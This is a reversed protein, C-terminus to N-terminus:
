SFNNIIRTVPSSEAVVYQTKPSSKIDVNLSELDKVIIQADETWAHRRCPSKPKNFNNFADIWEQIKNDEINKLEICKFRYVRIEFKDSSSPVHLQKESSNDVKFEIRFQNIGEKYIEKFCSMPICQKENIYTNGSYSPLM